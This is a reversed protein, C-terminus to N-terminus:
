QMEELLRRDHSVYRNIQRMSNWGAALMIRSNPYGLTVMRFIGSDRAHSFTLCRDLEARAGLVLLYRSISPQAMKAPIKEGYQNWIRIARPSVLSVLRINRGAEQKQRMKDLIIRGHKDISFDEAKLNYYDSYHLCLERALLFGDRVRALTTPLELAEIRCIIEEPINYPKSEAVATGKFADVGGLIMLGQSFGWHCAETVLKTVKTAYAGGLGLTRTLYANFKTVFSSTIQNAWLRTKKEKLLYSDLHVRYKLFNRYTGRTIEGVKRKAPDDPGIRSKKYAGFQDLLESFLLPAANMAAIEQYITEATVPDGKSFLNDAAKNITREHLVLKEALDKAKESRRSASRSKWEEVSCRIGSSRLDPTQGRVSLVAYVSGLSQNIGRSKRFEYRVTLVSYYCSMPPNFLNVTYPSM